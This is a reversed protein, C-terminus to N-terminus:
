CDAQDDPTSDIRTAIIKCLLSLINTNRTKVIINSCPERGLEHVAICKHVRWEVVAVLSLRRVTAVIAVTQQVNVRLRVGDVLRADQAVGLTAGCITLM